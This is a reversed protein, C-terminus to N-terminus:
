FIFIFGGAATCQGLFLNQCSCQATMAAVGSDGTKPHTVMNQAHWWTRSCTAMNQSTNGREPAHWWTQPHKEVGLVSEVCLACHGVFCSTLWHVPQNNIITKIRGCFLLQPMCLFIVKCCFPLLASANCFLPQQSYGLIIASKSVDFANSFFSALDGQM